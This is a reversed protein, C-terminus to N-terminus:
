RPRHKTSLTPSLPWEHMKTTPAEKAESKHHDTTWEPVIVARILEQISVGRRKAEKELERYISDDFTQMFKPLVLM